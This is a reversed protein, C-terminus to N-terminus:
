ILTFIVVMLIALILALIIIIFERVEVKKKLRVLRSRLDSNDTQIYYFESIIVRKDKEPLNDILLRMYGPLVKDKM